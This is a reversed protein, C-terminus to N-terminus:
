LSLFFEANYRHNKKVFHLYMDLRIGRTDDGIRTYFVGNFVVSM